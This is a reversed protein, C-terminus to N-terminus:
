KRGGKLIKIAIFSTIPISLVIGIGAVLSRVIDISLYNKM